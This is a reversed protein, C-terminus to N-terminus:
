RDPAPARDTFLAGEPAPWQRNVEALNAESIDMYGVTQVLPEDHIIRAWHKGRTGVGALLVRVPTHM